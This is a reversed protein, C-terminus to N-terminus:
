PAFGGTGRHALRRPSVLQCSFRPGDTDTSDRPGDDLRQGRGIGTVGVWALARAAADEALGRPGRSRLGRGADGNWFPVAQKAGFGGDRTGRRWVQGGSHAKSPCSVQIRLRHHRVDKQDVVFRRGPGRHCQKQALAPVLYSLSVAHSGGDIGEVELREVEHEGIQSHGISTAQVHEARGSCTAGVGRDDEESRICSPVGRLLRHPETGDVVEFLAVRGLVQELVDLGGEGRGWPGGGHPSSEFRGAKRRQVVSAASPAREQRHEERIEAAGELQDSALAELGGTDHQVRDQLAHHVGHMAVPSRHVLDHTVADHREEARSVGGCIVCAVGAVGRHRHLIRDGAVRHRATWPRSIWIRTPMAEPSTM